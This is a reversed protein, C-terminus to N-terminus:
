ALFYAEHTLQQLPYARGKKLLSETFATKKRKSKTKKMSLIGPEPLRVCMNWLSGPMWTGMKLRKKRLYEKGFDLLEKYSEM